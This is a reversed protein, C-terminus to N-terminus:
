NEIGRNVICKAIDIRITDESAIFYNREGPIVEVHHFVKSLTLYVISNIEKADASMYNVTPSLSVSFVGYPRLANKVEQFFELTYYRNIQANSPDPTNVIIADYLQSSEKIWKRADKTIVHLEPIYITDHFRNEAKVLWPNIEFYDIRKLTNYKLAQKTMGTIGGSVMM